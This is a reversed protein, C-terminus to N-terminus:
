GFVNPESPAADQPGFDQAEIKDLATALLAESLRKGKHPTLAGGLLQVM